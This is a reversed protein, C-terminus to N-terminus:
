SWFLAKTILMAYDDSYVLYDDGVELLFINNSMHSELGLAKALDWDLFPVFIITELSMHAHSHLLLCELDYPISVDM